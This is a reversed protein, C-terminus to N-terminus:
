KEEGTQQKYKKLLEIFKILEQLKRKKVNIEVALHRIKKALPRIKKLVENAKSTYLCVLLGRVAIRLQEEPEM